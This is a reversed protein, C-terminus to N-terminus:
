EEEFHRQLAFLEIQDFAIGVIAEFLERQL